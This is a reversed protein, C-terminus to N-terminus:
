EFIRVEALSSNKDTAVFSRELLLFSVGIAGSFPFNVSNKFQILLIFDIFFVVLPVVRRANSQRKAEGGVLLADEFYQSWFRSEALVRVGVKETISLLATTWLSERM